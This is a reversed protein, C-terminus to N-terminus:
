TPWSSNEVSCLFFLSFYSKAKAVVCLMTSSLFRVQLTKARENSSAETTPLGLLLSPFRPSTPSPVASSASPTAAVSPYFVNSHASLCSGSVSGSGGGGNSISSSSTKNFLSSLDHKSDLIANIKQFINDSNCDSPSVLLNNQPLSSASASASAANASEANAGHVSPSSTASCASSSSSSSSCSPFEQFCCVLNMIVILLHALSKIKSVM